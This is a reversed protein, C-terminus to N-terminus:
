SSSFGHAFKQGKVIVRLVETRVASGVAYAKDIPVRTVSRIPMGIERPRSAAWKASDITVGVQGSAM